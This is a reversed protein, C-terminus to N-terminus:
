KETLAEIGEWDVPVGYQMFRYIRKLYIQAAMDGPDVALVKEFHTQAEDFEESHYHLLGKEFDTQTAMKLKIIEHPNGDFIEFVSIPDKKGKVRVKDLFRFTYRTLGKLRFLTNESIVTSAGYMKTLGEIRSALNVTDSIVTGEMREAEGVVGLMVNGTHLGIGISIPQYDSRARHVNYLAVAHQIAIAADLADNPNRPFIAM